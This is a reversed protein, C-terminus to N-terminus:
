PAAWNTRQDSFTGHILVLPPGEGWTECAIRIGAATVFSFATPESPAASPFTLSADHVTM